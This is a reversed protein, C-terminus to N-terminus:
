QLRQRLLQYLEQARGHKMRTRSVAIVASAFPEKPDGLALGLSTVGETVADSLVAYGHRRAQDVQQWIAPLGMRARSFAAPYRDYIRQIEDPPLTALLSFSGANTGLVWMDGERAPSARVSFEGAARFVCYSFDGVRVSLFVTDGTIRAIQQLAFQYRAVLPSQRLTAQGLHIAEMGLHFLRQNPGKQILGEALLTGLSRQVASREEGLTDQIARASLGDAHHQGILKLIRLTRQATNAGPITGIKSVM